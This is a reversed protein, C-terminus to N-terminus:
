CSLKQIKDHFTAYEFDTISIQFMNQMKLASAFNLSHQVQAFEPPKSAAQATHLETVLSLNHLATNQIQYLCYSPRLSDYLAQM